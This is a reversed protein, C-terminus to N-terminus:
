TNGWIIISVESDSANSNKLQLADISGIMVFLYRITFPTGDSIKISIDATTQIKIAKIESINILSLDITHFLSDNPLSFSETYISTYSTSLDTNKESIPISDTDLEYQTTQFYVQPM